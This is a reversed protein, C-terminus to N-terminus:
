QKQAYLTLGLMAVMGVIDIVHGKFVSALVKLEDSEKKNALQMLPSLVRGGNNMMTPFAVAFAVLSAVDRRQYANAALGGFLSVCFVPLVKYPLTTKRSAYHGLAAKKAAKNESSRAPLDYSFLGYAVNTSLFAYGSYIAIDAATM